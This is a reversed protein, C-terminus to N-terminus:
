VSRVKGSGTEPRCFSGTTGVQRVTLPAAAARGRWAFRRSRAAAGPEFPGRRVPAAEIRPLTRRGRRMPGSPHKTAQSDGFRGVQDMVRDATSRVAQNCHSGHAPRRRSRSRRARRDDGVAAHAREDRGGHRPQATGLLGVQARGLADDRHVDAVDARAGLQDLRVGEARVPRLERRVEELVLELPDVRGAHPERALRPLDGARSTKMAPEIPGSPSTSSRRSVRASSKASCADIRSPRPASRKM